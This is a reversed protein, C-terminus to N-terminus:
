GIGTTVKSCEEVVSYDRSPNPSRIKLVIRENFIGSDGATNNNKNDIQGPESTDLAVVKSHQKNLTQTEKEEKKKRKGSQSKRTDQVKFKLPHKTKPQQIQIKFGNDSTTQTKVRLKIPKRGRKGKNNPPPSKFTIKLPVQQEGASKKTKKKKPGKSELTQDTKRKRKENTETVSEM